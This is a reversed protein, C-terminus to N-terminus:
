FPVHSQRQIHLAIDAQSVTSIEARTISQIELHPKLSLLGGSNPLRNVKERLEPMQQEISLRVSDTSPGKGFIVDMTAGFKPGMLNCREMCANSAHSIVEANPEHRSCTFINPWYAAVLRRTLVLSRGEECQRFLRFPPMVAM